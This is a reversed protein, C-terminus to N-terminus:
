IRYSEIGLFPKSYESSNAKTIVFAMEMEGDDMVEM